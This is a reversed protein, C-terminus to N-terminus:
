RRAPGRRFYSVGWTGPGVHTGVIGGLEFVHVDEFGFEESFADHVDEALEPSRAHVLGLMGGAGGDLEGRALELLSDLVGRNGRAKGAATVMGDEITLIPQIGAMKGLIARARGIRGGRVLYDLDTVTFYVRARVCLNSVLTKLEALDAGSQAARAAKMVVMGLPASALRSDVVSAEIGKVLGAATQASQVTGSMASSIHVSLVERTEWSLEEYAKLFDHPTPQSTTPLTWSSELKEYFEPTTLDLGCRYSQDEFNITLPVVTIGLDAADQESIDASSDTVIRVGRARRDRSARRRGGELAPDAAGVKPAEGAGPGPSDPGSGALAGRVFERHQERMDDVKRGTVDGFTEAVDFVVEPSNTHIHVRVFGPSGVVVLSGGMGAFKVKVDGTDAKPGEIMFETCYRYKLDREEINLAAEPPVISITDLVSEVEEGRLMRLIGELLDVFGEGGADVVGAEKLVPLLEPTRDLSEAAAGYMGLLLEVFNEEGGAVLRAVEEVAERVVTLVTGEIPEAMAEYAGEVSSELAEVFGRPYLREIGQAERAFGRVFQALIIGANGRAGVLVARSLAECAEGLSPDELGRVSDAASKLTLTLNNGTDGDPVPFVNIENLHLRKSAVWEAGSILASVLCPGDIYEVHERVV